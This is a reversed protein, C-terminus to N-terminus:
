FPRQGTRSRTLDAIRELETIRDDLDHAEFAKASFSLLAVAARGRVPESRSNLLKRLTNVADMTASQLADMAESYLRRRESRLEDRFSADATWRDLTRESIRAAEAAESRTSGSVLERLVVLRQGEATLTTQPGDTDATKATKPKTM